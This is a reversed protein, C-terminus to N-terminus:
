RRGRSVTIGVRARPALRTGSRPSVRVVRGRRTRSASRRVTGVTCGAAVIRSRVTSLRQGRRVSPVRCPKGDSVTVNVAAGNPLSTGSVPTLRVLTGRAFKTSPVYDVAGMACAATALAPQVNALPTGGALAPVVCPPPPATVTFAATQTAVPATDSSSGTLWLCVVKPGPTANTFTRTFSFAGNVAEGDLVGTGPDASPSPACAAGAARVTAYARKPAESSGTVALTVSQGVLPAGPTVVGSIAGTPRRFTVQQTFPTVSQSFSDALWICFQFTGPTGWRGSKDITLDGNVNSGNFTSGDWVGNFSESGTDSSASPACPAGGAPRNKFFVRKPTSSNLTLRATRGVDVVPDPNGAADLFALSASDAQAVSAGCLLLACAAVFSSLGKRM